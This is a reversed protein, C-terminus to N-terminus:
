GVDRAEPGDWRALEALQKRLSQLRADIERLRTLRAEVNQRQKKMQRCEAILTTYREWGEILPRIRKLESQCTDLESTVETLEQRIEELEAEWRRAAALEKELREVEQRAQLIEGPTGAPRSLGQELRGIAAELRALVDAACAEDPAGSVIGELARGVRRAEVKEVEAQDIYVTSRFLTESDLGTITALVRHIEDVDTLRRGDPVILEAQGQGFDKWLRYSQGVPRDFALELRFPQGDAWHSLARWRAAQTTPKIFLGLVLAAGLTTKGSENPGFVVNLGPGFELRRERHRGLRAGTLRRVIM